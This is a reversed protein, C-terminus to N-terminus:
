TGEKGPQRKASAATVPRAAPRLVAYSLAAWAAGLAFGALVDTPWHVGLYVRSFGVILSVLVAISWIMVKRPRSTTAASALLALTATVAVV